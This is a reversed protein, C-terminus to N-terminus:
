GWLSTSQDGRTGPGVHQCEQAHKQDYYQVKCGEGMLCKPVDPVYIKRRLWHAASDLARFLCRQCCLQDEDIAVQAGSFVPLPLFHIRKLDSTFADYLDQISKYEKLVRLQEYENLTTLYKSDM